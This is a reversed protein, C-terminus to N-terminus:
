VDYLVGARRLMARDTDSLVMGSEVGFDGVGYPRLLELVMGRDIKEQEVLRMLRVKVLDKLKGYWARGGESRGFRHVDDMCYDKVGGGIVDEPMYIKPDSEMMGYVWELEGVLDFDNAM